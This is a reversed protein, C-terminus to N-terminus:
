LDLLNPVAGNLKELELLKEKMPVEVIALWRAIEGRSRLMAKLHELSFSNKHLLKIWKKHREM